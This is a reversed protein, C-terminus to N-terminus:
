LITWFKHFQLPCLSSSSKFSAVGFITISNNDLNTLLAVRHKKEEGGKVHLAAPWVGKEGKETLTHVQCRWWWVHSQPRVLTGNAPGPSDARRPFFSSSSSLWWRIGGDCAPGFLSLRPPRRHWPRRRLGGNSALNHSYPSAAATCLSVLVLGGLGRGSSSQSTLLAIM